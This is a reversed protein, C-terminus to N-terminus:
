WGAMTDAPSFPKRRLGLMKRLLDRQVCNRDWFLIPWGTESGEANQKAMHREIRKLEERIWKESKM